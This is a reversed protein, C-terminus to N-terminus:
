KNKKKKRKKKKKEKKSKMVPKDGEIKFSSLVYERNNKVVNNPISNKHQHIIKNHNIAMGNDKNMKNRRAELKKLLRQKTSESRMQRKLHSHMASMNMKGGGTNLGMNKFMKEMNKMGPMNKMNNMLENTEKLIEEKNIEGSKIKEDLKNGVSKVMNLLKSPNNFMKKFLKDVSGIDDLDGLEDELEKSTEEAIEKALKGLKGGLLKNINDHIDDFNPINNSMDMNNFMNINSVDINNDMFGDFINNSMDNNFMNTIDNLTDKLKDKLVESDMAEFLKATEGFNDIDDISGVIHLLMLQLYKWIVDKTNESIDAFWIHKFDIGNLFMTNIGDDNFIEVRKYLIDFFRESYIPKLSIYIDNIIDNNIDNIENTYIHELRDDIKGKYEPFVNIIDTIFDKMLKLFGDPIKDM